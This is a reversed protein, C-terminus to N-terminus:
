EKLSLLVKIETEQGLPHLEDDYEETVAQTKRLVAENTLHHKYSISLLKSLM